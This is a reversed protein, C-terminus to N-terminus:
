PNRDEDDTSGDDQKQRAADVRDLQEVIDALKAQRRSDTTSDTASNTAIDSEGSDSQAIQPDPPSEAAAVATRDGDTPAVTTGAPSQDDDPTDSADPTDAGNAEDTTAGGSVAAEALKPEPLPEGKMILEVEDRELSEREMLAAVMTEVKDTNAKLISRAIGLQEDVIRTVEADIAQLTQESHSQRRSFDRGLFVQENAEEYAIPGLKDSMGLQTVMFRATQTVKKIDSYAGSHIQGIFIEEAARGGLAMCISALFKEKSKHYEDKEPPTFTLGLAQGRPIITVKQVPDAYECNLAVVAHGSEHYATLRKDDETLVLSRREPGLMVKEKADEFDDTTVKDHNKRAALLAAENVLNELDAGAMGPTGAAIQRASVSEDMRVKKMHVKLIAERGVLDPMDVVIQRDFRGPRLLAPDLVDPRNTAALIIVGENSEFGDMEVLLQNLTQEREDHGGGLGAGRHRGVADIEDIFIICPANKKGQDFLDRVRSAGVGVFMEVFDSGSMSFFPVGAEGAVARGLLTKGTGPQGVLLGGKPIRGGLRQYKKPSRLFDIIEQLEVKAEDCGAVDEFTIEPKDMNFLKAKSKGFSFAKNGGGQMQRLFFIWLGLILLFPLYYTLFTSLWNIKPPEAKLKAEPNYGRIWEALDSREYLNVEFREVAQVSGDDMTIPTKEVFEGTATEGTKSLTAINGHEVQEVFASYTIEHVSRRDIYMMQFVVFVLLILLIWFGATKGPVPPRRGSGFPSRNQGGPGKKDSKRNM